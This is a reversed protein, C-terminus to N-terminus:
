RYGDTNREKWLSSALITTNPPPIPPAPPLSFLVLTYPLLLLHSPPVNPALSPRRACVFLFYSLGEVDRVWLVLRLCGRYTNGDDRGVHPQM